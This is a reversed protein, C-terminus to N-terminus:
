NAVSKWAARGGPAGPAAGGAASGLLGYALVKASAGAGAGAWDLLGTMFTMPAGGLWFPYPAPM